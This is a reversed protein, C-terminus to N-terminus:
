SGSWKSLDDGAEACILIPQYMEPPKPLGSGSENGFLFQEFNEPKFRTTVAVCFGDRPLALGSELDEERFLQQPWPPERIASGGGEFVITPFSATNEKDLGASVDNFTSAFDPAGNECSVVLMKGKKMCLVIQQRAEELIDAVPRKQQTKEVIMKKGNLVVSDMKGYNFFTDVRHDESPDIILPTKGATHVKAIAEPLQALGIRICVMRPRGREATEAAEAQAAEAQKKLEAQKAQEVM